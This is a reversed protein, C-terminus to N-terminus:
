LSSIMKAWRRLTMFFLFTHICKLAGGRRAIGAIERQASTFEPKQVQFDAPLLDHNRLLPKKPIM